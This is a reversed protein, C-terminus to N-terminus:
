QNKERYKAELARAFAILEERSWGISASPQSNWMIHYLKESTGGRCYSFRGADKIEEDDLGIWTRQPPATYLPINPLNVTTPTHWSIPKVWELSRKEVNIFAVPEQEPKPKCGDNFGEAYGMAYEAPTPQAVMALNDEIHNALAEKIATIVVQSEDRWDQCNAFDRYFILEKQALNLAEDKTM